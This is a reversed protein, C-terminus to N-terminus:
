GPKRLLEVLRSYGDAGHGAEVAAAALDRFVRPLRGDLGAEDSTAVMHEFAALEMALNDETGPYEGADVDDALGELSAPIIEVARLAYPLFSRADVGHASTVAAAHLFATLGAFFVELMATDLLSAGAHDTGVHESRGALVRLTAAHRDFLARDGAYLVLAEASGILPTPVMIAGSLWDLGRDAAWAATARAETPTASSLNVVTRGALAAPEISEIVKRTATHDRLCVVVVSAARAAATPDAAVEAGLERLPEAREPTRNWVTTPLGAVRLARALAAGMPGLGLVTVGVESM